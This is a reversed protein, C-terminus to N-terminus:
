ARRCAAAARRRGGSPARRDLVLREDHVPLRGRRPREVRRRRLRRVADLLSAAEAGLAPTEGVDGVLREVPARDLARADRVEQELLEFAAAVHAHAVDDGRDLGVLVPQDRGLGLAREDHLAPRAGALRRDAQVAGRPEEVRVALPQAAHEDDARVRGEHVVDRVDQRREALLRDLLTRDGLEHVPDFDRALLLGVDRPQLAVRPQALDHRARDLDRDHRRRLLQDREDVADVHAHPLPVDRLQELLRELGARRETERAVAEPHGDEAAEVLTVALQEPRPREAAEVLELAGQPLAAEERAPEVADQRQRLRLLEHRPEEGRRGREVTRGLAHEVVVLLLQQQAVPRPSHGIELQLSWSTGSSSSARM